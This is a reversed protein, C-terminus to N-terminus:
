RNLKAVIREITQPTTQCCGGIIAVNQQAWSTVCDLIAQENSDSSWTKSEADYHAGGNPYLAITQPLSLLGRAITNNIGTVTSCNIGFIPLIPDYDQLYDRLTEFATGDSLNGADDVTVSLWFTQKQNYLPIIATVIAQIEAFSPITEFVFDHVDQAILSDIRQRHFDVYDSRSINYTGTYESGDSLYAGYPGLSGVIVQQETTAQKVQYVADAILADIAADSLGIASFTAYSAQYTSTLLIDAGAQTFDAHAQQIKAPDNKLIESSWLSTNLNCGYSELTTALGGDLILPRKLLLKDKLRM